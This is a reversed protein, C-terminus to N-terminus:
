EVAFRATDEVGADVVTLAADAPVVLHGVPQQVAFKHLVGAIRRGCAWWVFPTRAASTDWPSPLGTVPASHRCPRGCVQATVVVPVWQTYYHPDAPGAPAHCLLGLRELVVRAYPVADVVEVGGGKAAGEEVAEARMAYDLKAGPEV